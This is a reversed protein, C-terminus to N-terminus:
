QGNRHVLHRVIHAFEAKGYFIGSDANLRLVHILEERCILTKIFLFVHSYLSGTQPKIDGSSKGFEHSTRKGAFAFVALSRFKSEGDTLLYGIHSRDSHELFMIVACPLTRVNRLEDCRIRVDENDIIRRHVQRDDSTQKLSGLNENSCCVTSLFGKLLDLLGIEVYDQEIM